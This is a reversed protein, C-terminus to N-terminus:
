KANPGRRIVAGSRRWQQTSWRKFNRYFNMPPNSARKFWMRADGEKEFLGGGDLTSPDKKIGLITRIYKARKGRM